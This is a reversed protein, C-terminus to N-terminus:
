YRNLVARAKDLGQGIAVAGCRYRNRRTDAHQDADRIGETTFDTKGVVEGATHGAHCVGSTVLVGVGVIGAGTMEGRDGVRVALDFAIQVTFRGVGAAGAQGMGQGADDILLADTVGAIVVICLRPCEGALVGAPNVLVLDGVVGAVADDGVRQPRRAGVVSLVNEPDDLGGIIGLGTAGAATGAM